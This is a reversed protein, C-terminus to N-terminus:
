DNPTLHLSRNVVLVPLGHSLRVVGETVSGLAARNFGSRTHSAMIILGAQNYQAYRVIQAAVEGQTIHTSVQPVHALQEARVTALYGEADRRLEEEDVRQPPLYGPLTPYPVVLLQDPGPLVQLLVLSLNGELAARRALPLAIEALKGGDLPVIVRRHLLNPPVQRFAESLGPKEDEPRFHVLLVPLSTEHLVRATVSRNLVRELGSRGHTSMAILDAGTHRAAQVIQRPADGCVILTSVHYPLEEDAALRSLEPECRAVLLRVSGPLPNAPQWHGLLAERLQELYATAADTAPHSGEVIRLLVLESKFHAALLVTYPLIREALPSGDLPILIRKLM